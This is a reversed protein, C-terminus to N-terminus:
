LMHTTTQQQKEKRHMCGLAHLIEEKKLDKATGLYEYM